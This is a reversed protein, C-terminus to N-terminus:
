TLKLFNGFIVDFQTGIPAEKTKAENLLKMTDIRQKRLWELDAKIWNDVDEATASCNDCQLGLLFPRGRVSIAEVECEPSILLIDIEKSIPPIVAQTHWEFLPISDPLGHFVPHRRGKSTLQGQIFGISPSFNPGVRAGLVDALLQHGL